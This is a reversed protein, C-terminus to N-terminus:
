AVDQFLLLRNKARSYVLPAALIAAAFLAAGIQFARTWNATHIGFAIAGILIVICIGVFQMKMLKRLSNLQANHTTRKM